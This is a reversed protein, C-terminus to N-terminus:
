EHDRGVHGAIEAGAIIDKDQYRDLCGLPKYILENLLSALDRETAGLEKALRVRESIVRTEVSLNDLALRRREAPESYERDKRREHRDNLYKRIVELPNLAGMFEWFGPSNLSVASLVLQESRPISAAIEERTPARYQLRLGTRRSTPSWGFQLGFPYPSFPFDRTVRTMGDITAEFFILAEYARKLDDLYTAALEVEVSGQGYIKLRTQEPMSRELSSVRQVTQPGRSARRLQGRM